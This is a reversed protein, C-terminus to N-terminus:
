SKENSGAALCLNTERTISRATALDMDSDLYLFDWSLAGRFLLALATFEPGLTINSVFGHLHLLRFPGYHEALHIGAIYTLATTGMRKSRARTVMRIMPKSMITSIFKDGRKAPRYIHCQVERALDWFSIDPYVQVTFRSMAACCLLDEPPVPPKLYPRLDAFTIARMPVTKGQYLQGHTGLLLATNLAGYLTVGERRARSVLKSTIRAPLEGTLIRCRGTQHVPAAGTGRSRFRYSIEDAMQRGMFLATRWALAVGKFASPFYDEVPPLLTRQEPEPIPRKEHFAACFRLLENVLRVLSAGDMIAHHSTLILEGPSGKQGQILTCHVLPSNGIEMAKNLEYEAETKWSDESDRECSRLPIQGPDHVFRYGETEELISVNLLPRGLPLLDLARRVVDEEPLPDLKLTAVINFPAFAGTMTLAQEFAGLRRGEESPM